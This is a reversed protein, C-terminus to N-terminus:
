MEESHPQPGQGIGAIMASGLGRPPYKSERMHAADLSLELIKGILDDPDRYPM